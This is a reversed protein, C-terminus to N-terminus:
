VLADPAAGPGPNLNQLVSPSSLEVSGPSSAVPEYVTVITSHLLTAGQWVTVNQGAAATASPTCTFDCSSSGGTCTPAHMSMVHLPLVTLPPLNATFRRLDWEVRGEDSRASRGGACVCWGGQLLQGAPKAETLDRVRETAMM